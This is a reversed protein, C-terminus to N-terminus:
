DGSLHASGRQTNSVSHDRSSINRVLEILDAANVPKSIYDDMGAALCRERDGTMAHATMAIIPTRHGAATENRRIRESAEFGGMEPMQVDMLIVDFAREQLAKLAELGNGALAVRYGAKELIRIAVRQNVLNDEVLLIELKAGVAAPVYSDMPALARAASPVQRRVLSKAIASRLDARRVPKTLYLSIGLERCRKVHGLQEGSSLMMVVADTLHPSNQIRAALDFGDMEPMHFDTLVLTFPDGNEIAQRLMELAEIGSGAFQPRMNWLRLMGGLIRQNTRNDDVVLTTVGALRALELGPPEVEWAAGFSATFHFCSGQGPQSDVWIRGGLMKALRTSITLGLGTGGFKRTTSGDAQSFAEFIVAQKDPPIGIGTDRVDFRLRLRGDPTTEELAASLVVEGRETFKIANGALNTLIQGVRVPDGVVFDPVQPQVELMLELGKADARLALARVTEELRDRLNFHVLELTTKGAEIKSFDLIDNIVTLLNDASSKVVGLCERQDATLDSDLVLETMGMVGNMPTRIEHSMNALFESKARSAAEARDKAQVLEVTRAAVEQELRDGKGLLEADRSEIECLMRNFTDILKGLDDDAYKVARVSYNQEESVTRAVAALHAIPKSVTGQLQTALGMALTSTSLLIFLVLWVTKTAQAHLEGLDYELYIVGATEQNLLIRRFVLLGDGEFWSGDRRALPAALPGGRERRYEAFPTGETSYLIATVIHQQARLGALLEEAARRDRFILAAASNSGVIGALVEANTRMARRAMIQSYSGALAVALLVAAWVTFMIIIRLKHKIALNRYRRAINM